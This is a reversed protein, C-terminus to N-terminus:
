VVLITSSRLRLADVSAVGCGTFLALETLDEVELLFPSEDVFPEAAVPLLTAAPSRIVNSPKPPSISVFSPSLTVNFCITSSLLDPTTRKEYGFADVGPHLREM